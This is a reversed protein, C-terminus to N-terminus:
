PVVQIVSGTRLAGYFAAADAPALHVGPDTRDPSRPDAAWGTLVLVPAPPVPLEGRGDDRGTWRVWFLGPPSAEGVAGGPRVAVPGHEIRGGSLLWAQGTSLELCAHVTALCPTGPAAPPPELPEFPEGDSTEPEPLRAAAVVPPAPAPLPAAVVPTVPPPPPRYLAKEMAAVSAGTAAIVALGLIAKTLGRM